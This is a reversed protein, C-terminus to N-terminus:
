STGLHHQRPVVSLSGNSLSLEMMLSQDTECAAESLCGFLTM